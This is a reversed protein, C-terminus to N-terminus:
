RFQLGDRVAQPLPYRPLVEPERVPPHGLGDGALTGPAIIQASWLDVGLLFTRQPDQHVEWTACWDLVAQDGMVPHSLRRPFASADFFEYRGELLEAIRNKHYRLEQLVWPTFFGTARAYRMEIGTELEHCRRREQIFDDTWLQWLLYQLANIRGRRFQDADFARFYGYAM